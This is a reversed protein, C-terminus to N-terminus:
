PLTVQPSPIETYDSVTWQSETLSLMRTDYQVNLHPGGNCTFTNLVLGGRWNAGCSPNTEQSTPAYMIGTFDGSHAGNGPDITGGALYVRLKTPDGNKNVTADSISVTINTNNTPIVYIDVVGGNAAGAAVTFTNPFAMTKAALDTQSCYYVGPSLIAPLTGAVAPCANYPTPLCPTTPVNPVAPCTLAPNQPNYTGPTLYGNSCSTGGGKFYDQQHAPSNSGQCTIQGNSAVNAAPFTVPNNNQDVTEVPGVGTVANYNGTNGNFTIATKAFIAFPYLYSRSVTAKVAHPQGNVLGKSFVTYTNDDVRRATYQVGSAGPVSAVTCAANAGVCFTAAPQIGFQDLRFLADSVGADANALAASFDQGRRTSALGALTRAVVATSLLTLVMIVAVIVIINGNEDKSCKSM